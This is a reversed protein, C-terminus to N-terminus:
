IAENIKAVLNETKAIHSKKRKQLKITDEIQIPKIDYGHLAFFSSMKISKEIKANIALMAFSLKAPATASCPNALEGSCV